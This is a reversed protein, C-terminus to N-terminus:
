SNMQSDKASIPAMERSSCSLILRNKMLILMMMMIASIIIVIIVKRKFIPIRRKNVLMVKSSVNVAFPENLFM